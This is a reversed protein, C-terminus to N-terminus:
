NLFYSLQNKLFTTSPTIRECTEFDFYTFVQVIFNGEVRPEMHDAKQVETTLIGPIHKKCM